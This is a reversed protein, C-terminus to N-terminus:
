RHRHGCLHISATESPTRHGICIRRKDYIFYINPERSVKRVPFHLNVYGLYYFEQNFEEKQWTITFTGDLLKPTMRAEEIGQYDM